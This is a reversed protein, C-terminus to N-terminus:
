SIICPNANGNGISPGRVVSAGDIGARGLNRRFIRGIAFIIVIARFAIDASATFTSREKVSTRGRCVTMFARHARGLATDANFGTFRIRIARLLSSAGV